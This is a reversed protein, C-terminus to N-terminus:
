ATRSRRIGLLFRGALVLAAAALPGGLYLVPMDLWYNQVANPDHGQEATVQEPGFGNALVYAVVAALVVASFLMLVAAGWRPFRRIMITAVLFPVSFMVLFGWPLYRPDGGADVAIAVFKSVTVLTLAAALIRLTRTSPRRTPLITTM